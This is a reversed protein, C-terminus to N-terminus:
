LPFRNRLLLMVLTFLLCVALAVLGQRGMRLHVLHTRGRGGIYCRAEMALVLEEARRFAEIFLPVIFAAMQRANRVFQWRGGTALDAGRCAQAKIIMELQGALLPVFRLAITGVLSIEHGPLGLRAFPRLMGEIGRAIEATTTTNTLLSTLFLLDLFRLLSVVVLQVSGNTIHVWGWRLLTVNAMTPPVYRDGYFLLQLLALVVILPIAPRLGSLIYRLSVRSLLVLGLCALLLIGNATYSPNLSVALSLLILATIKVRPDLRHVPSDGPIYQGITLHRLLELNEM